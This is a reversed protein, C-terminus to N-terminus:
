IFNNELKFDSIGIINFMNRVMNHKLLSDREDKGGLDPGKNIEM